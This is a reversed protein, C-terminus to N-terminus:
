DFVIANLFFVDRDKENRARVNQYGFALFRSGYWPVLAAEEPKGPKEHADPQNTSQLPVLLDNPADQTHDIIKYHLDNEHLYAAVFRRGDPLPRLRVTEGLHRSTAEKLVFVNDWQLAGTRDFGCIVAHSTRYESNDPRPTNTWPRYGVPYYYNSLAANNQYTSNRTILHYVEGTLVYGDSVPLLDDHLLFSYHLRLDQKNQRRADRRARLRAAQHPKLYDAFHKLNLFDYFKLSERIQNLSATDTLNATFLGQAYRSDRLSYTGALLRQSGADPSLQATILNRESEPQVFRASQLTGDAALQKVQLRAKVGNSQSVVYTAQQSISDVAFSYDLPLDERVAPLYQHKKTAPDLLLVTLHNDVLLNVFLRGALAKVDYITRTAQMGRAKGTDFEVIRTIGTRGDLQALWFREPTYDSQFLAYVTTAEACIEVLTHERPVDLPQTWLPKLSRDFKQFSFQDRFTGSPQNAVLLVVSSDALLPQVQIDSSYSRFPLETRFPQTPTQAGGVRPWGLGFGLVIALLLSPKM